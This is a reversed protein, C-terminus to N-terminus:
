RKFLRPFGLEIKSVADLRELHANSLEINAAGLSDNLQQINRAGVIPIIQQHQQMVWRIAIQAASFGTEAAINVVEQAIIRNKENLRM